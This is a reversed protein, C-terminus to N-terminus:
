IIGALTKEIEAVQSKVESNVAKEKRINEPSVQALSEFSAAIKDLEANGTLNLEKIQRAIEQLNTLSKDCFKKSKGNLYNSVSAIGSAVREFLDSEVSKLGDEVSEKILKGMVEDEVKNFNFSLPLLSPNVSFKGNLGDKSYYLHEPFDGNREQREKEMLGDYIDLFATKEEKHREILDRLKNEYQPILRSPMVRVNGFAVSFAEVHQRLEREVIELDKLAARPILQSTATDKPSTFDKNLEATKAKNRRSFKCSSISLGVQCLGELSKTNIKVNQM